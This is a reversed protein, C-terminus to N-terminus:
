KCRRRQRLLGAVGPELKADDEEADDIQSRWRRSMEGSCAAVCWHVRSSMEGNAAEACRQGAHRGKGVSLYFTKRAVIAKESNFKLRSTKALWRVAKRIRCISTRM